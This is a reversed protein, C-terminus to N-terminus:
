TARSSPSTAWTDPPTAGRSSCWPGPTSTRTRACSPICYRRAGATRARSRRRGPSCCSPRRPCRRMTSWRRPSTSGFSWFATRPASACGPPSDFVLIPDDLYDIVSASFGALVPTLADSGDFDRGAELASLATHFNRSVASRANAAGEDEGEGTLKLFDEFPILGFERELRKQRGEGRLAGARRGVLTKLAHAARLCEEDRLLTESAPYIRARELRSTSRQTMVDFSRLSDVEDDFFELRVAGPMGVPYVDLIGGRLACQGRAEVLSAREYGAATLRAILETPSVRMEPTIEVVNEVFRERPALRCLLADALAVLARAEGTAAAGLAEIRRMRLERSSATTRLFSIDRAPLLAVNGGLLTGLDEAVRQAAVENSTVYLLPRGLRRAVAAMLHLKQADDLGCAMVAGPRSLAETLASFEDLADLPSFLCTLNELM